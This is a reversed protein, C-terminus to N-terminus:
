DHSFEIWEIDENDEELPPGVTISVAQPALSVSLLYYGYGPRFILQADEEVVKADKLLEVLQEWTM